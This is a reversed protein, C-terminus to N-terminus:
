ILSTQRMKRFRYSYGGCPSIDYFVCVYDFLAKDYFTIAAFRQITQLRKVASTVFCLYDKKKDKQATKKYLGMQNQIYDRFQRLVQM